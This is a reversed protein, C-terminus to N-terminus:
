ELTFELLHKSKELDIDQLSVDPDSSWDEM